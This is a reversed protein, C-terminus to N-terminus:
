VPFLLSIRQVFGQIVLYIANRLYLKMEYNFKSLVDRINLVHHQLPSFVSVPIYSWFPFCIFRFSNKKEKKKKKKKKTWSYFPLAIGNCAQTSGSTELLSPVWIELCDAYSPRLTTLGVCRGGKSWLISERYENGNSASDFWHWPPYPLIIDIFFELSVM